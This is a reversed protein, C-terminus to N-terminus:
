SPREANQRAAKRDRAKIRRQLATRDRHCPSCMLRLNAPDDTGGDEVAVIHDVEWGGRSIATYPPIWEIPWDPQQGSERHKRVAWTSYAGGRDGTVDYSKRMRCGGCWRCVKDRQIIQARIYNWDGRVRWEDVCAQSCWSRRPAKVATGCWCCIPKGEANKAPFPWPGIQGRQGYPRSM